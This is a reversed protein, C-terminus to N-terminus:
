KEVNSNKPKNFVSTDNEEGTSFAEKTEASTVIQIEIKGRGVASLFWGGPIKNFMLNHERQLDILEKQRQAFGTRHSEIINVLKAMNQTSINPVSEQVWTMVASKGEGRRAEAHKVFIEQLKDLEATAVEAVGSIVSKMAAFDTTNAKQKSEIATRIEAERNLAGCGAMTGFLVCATIIGVISMSVIKM